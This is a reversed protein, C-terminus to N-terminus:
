ASFIVVTIYPKRHFVQRATPACPRRAATLVCRPSGLSPALSVPSLTRVLSKLAFHETIFLSQSWTSITFYPHPFLTRSSLSLAAGNEGNGEFLM